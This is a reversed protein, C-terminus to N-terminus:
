ENNCLSPVLSCHFVFGLGLRGAPPPPPSLPSPDAAPQSMLKGTILLQRFKSLCWASYYISTQILPLFFYNSALQWKKVVVCVCLFFGSKKFRQFGRPTKM